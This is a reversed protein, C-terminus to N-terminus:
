FGPLMLHFLNSTCTPKTLGNQLKSYGFKNIQSGCRVNKEKLSSLMCMQWFNTIFVTKMFFIVHMWSVNNCFNIFSMSHFNHLTHAIISMARYICKIITALHVIM